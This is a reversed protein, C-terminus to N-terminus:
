FTGFSRKPTTSVTNRGSNTTQHIHQGWLINTKVSMRFYLFSLQLVFSNHTRFSDFCMSDFGTLLNRERVIICPVVCCLLEYWYGDIFVYWKHPRSYPVKIKSPIKPIIWNVLFSSRSWRCSGPISVRLAPRKHMRKGLFSPRSSSSTSRTRWWWGIRVTGNPLIICYPRWAVVGSRYTDGGFFYFGFFLCLCFGYRYFSLMTFTNIM